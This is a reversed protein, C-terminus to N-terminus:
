GNPLESNQTRLKSNVSKGLESDVAEGLESNHTRPESNVAEGLESDGAKGLESNYTRLESNTGSLESGLVERETNGALENWM